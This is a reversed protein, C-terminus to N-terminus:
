MLPVFEVAVGCVLRMPRWGDSDRVEAVKEEAEPVALCKPVQGM